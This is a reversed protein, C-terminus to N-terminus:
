ADDKVPGTRERVIERPDKDVRLAVFVPHRM